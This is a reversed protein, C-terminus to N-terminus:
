KETLTEAYETLSADDDEVIDGNESSSRRVEAIELVPTSLTPLEVTVTPGADTEASPKQEGFGDYFGALEFVQDAQVLDARYTWNRLGKETFLDVMGAVADAASPAKLFMAILVRYVQPEASSQETM